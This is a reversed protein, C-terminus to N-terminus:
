EEKKEKGQVVVGDRWCCVLLMVGVGTAGASVWAGCADGYRDFLMGVLPPVFIGCGSELAATFGMVSGILVPTVVTSLIASLLTFSIAAGTVVCLEGLILLEWRHAFGLVIRGCLLSVTGFVLLTRNQTPYKRKLYPLLFANTTSWVIGCFSLIRGYELPGFQFRSKCYMAFSATFAQFGFSLCFLVSLLLCADYQGIEYLFSRFSISEDKKTANKKEDTKTSEQTTVMSTDQLLLCTLLVNAIAITANLTTATKVSFSTSLWGGLTPGIVFGIGSFAGQRALNSTADGPFDLALARAISTSSHFCSLFSVDTYPFAVLFFYM